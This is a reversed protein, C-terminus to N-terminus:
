GLTASWAFGPMSFRTTFPTVGGSASPLRRQSATPAWINAWVTLAEAFGSFPNTWLSAPWAPVPAPSYWPPNQFPMSWLGTGWFQQPLYPGFSPWRMGFFSAAQRAMRDFALAAAVQSFFLNAQNGLATLSSTMAILAQRLNGAALNGAQATMDAVATEAPRQGRSAPLMPLPKHGAPGPSAPELVFPFFFLV